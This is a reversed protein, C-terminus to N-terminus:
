NWRFQTMIDTSSARVYGEVSTQLMFRFKYVFCLYKQFKCAWWFFIEFDNESCFREPWDMLSAKIYHVNCVHTYLTWRSIKYRRRISPYSTCNLNIKFHSVCLIFLCFRRNFNWLKNRRVRHSYLWKARKVIFTYFKIKNIQLNM